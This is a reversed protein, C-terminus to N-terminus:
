PRDSKCCNEHKKTLLYCQLCCSIFWLRYITFFFTLGLIPAATYFAYKIGIPNKIEFDEPNCSFAPEEDNTSTSNLRSMSSMTSGTTNTRSLSVTPSQNGTTTSPHLSIARLFSGSRSRTGPSRDLSTSSTNASKLFSLPNHSSQAM